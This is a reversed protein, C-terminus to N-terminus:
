VYIQDINHFAEMNKHSNNQLKMKTLSPNPVWDSYNTNPYICYPIAFWNDPPVFRNICLLLWVFFMPYM